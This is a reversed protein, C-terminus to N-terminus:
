PSADASSSTTPKSGSVSWGLSVLERALIKAALEHGEKTWHRDVPYYLCAGAATAERFADTLDLSPVELEGLFAVVERRAHERDFASEERDWADRYIRWSEDEVQFKAPVIVVLFRVDEARAWDRMATLASKGAPWGIESIVPPWEALGVPELYQGRRSLGSRRYVGYLRARLFAYLHSHIRLYLRLRESRPRGQTVMRGDRVRPHVLFRDPRPDELDNGLYLAHIVLDPRWSAQRHVLLRSSRLPGYGGVGGNRVWWEGGLRAALREPFAEEAEVGVGFTFSDGTVLLRRDAGVRPIHDQPVRYGERDTLIRTRFEPTRVESRHGEQLRYGADPDERFMGITDASRQPWLARLLLEGAALAVVVGLGLALLNAALRRRRSSM